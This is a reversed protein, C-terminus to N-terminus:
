FIGPILRYPTNKCYARYAPDQTLLEEELTIRWMVFPLCVATMTANLMTPYAMVYGITLVFWGLYIPHRILRFPGTTVIGRNAPLLGFRRGLYVRSVQDFIIGVSEVVVACKAITGESHVQPRMLAPTLMM